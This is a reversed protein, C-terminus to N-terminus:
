HALSKLSPFFCVLKIGSGKLNIWLRRLLLSMLMRVPLHMSPLMISARCVSVGNKSNRYKALLLKPLELGLVSLAKVAGYEVDAGRGDLLALKEDIDM